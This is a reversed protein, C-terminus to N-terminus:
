DQAESSVFTSTVSGAEKEEEEEDGSNKVLWDRFRELFSDDFKHKKLRFFHEFEIGLIDILLQYIADIISVFTCNHSM